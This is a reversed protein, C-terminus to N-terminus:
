NNYGDLNKKFLGISVTLSVILILSIVFISINGTQPNSINNNDKNNDGSASTKKVTITYTRVKIGSSSDKPLIQITFTTEGSYTGNGNQVSDFKFNTSDTLSASVRYTTVDDLTITYNDQNAILNVRKGGVTLSSLSNDLDDTSTKEKQVSLQYETLTDGSGVKVVIMMSEKGTQPKFTINDMALVEGTEFETVTIAEGENTPIASIGFTNGTIMVIYDYNTNSFTEQYISGGTITLNKLGKPIITNVTIESSVGTVDYQEKSKYYKISDLTLTEVGNPANDKIKINLSGIDFEGSIDESTYVDIKGNSIDPGNWKGAPEFSVLEINDSPSITANIATVVEDANGKISCRVATGSPTSNPTCTMSISGTFAYAKIPIIGILTILLIKLNKKM